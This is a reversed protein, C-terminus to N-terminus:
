GRVRKSAIRNRIWTVELACGGVPATTPRLHKSRVRSKQQMAQKRSGLM